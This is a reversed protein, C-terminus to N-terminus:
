KLGMLLHDPDELFTKLSELFRAAQAGDLIRHDFTVSVPLIKVNKLKGISEEKHSVVIKAM